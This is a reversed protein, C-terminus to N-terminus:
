GLAAEVAALAEENGALHKKAVELAAELQDYTAKKKFVASGGEYNVSPDLTWMVPPASEGAKYKAMDLSPAMGPVEPYFEKSFASKIKRPVVIQYGFLNKMENSLAFFRQIEIQEYNLNRQPMFCGGTVGKQFLLAIPTKPTKSFKIEDGIQFFRVVYLRSETKAYSFLMCRGADWTPTVGTSTGAVEKEWVCECDDAQYIKLLSKQKKAFVGTVGFYDRKAGYLTQPMYFVYPDRLGTEVCVPEDETRPDTIYLKGNSTSRVTYLLKSGDASWDLTYVEGPASIEYLVEASGVDYVWINPGNKEKSVVALVNACTPHWKAVILEKSTEPALTQVPEFAGASKKEPIIKGDEDFGDDPINFIQCVSAKTCVAVMNDNHPCWESWNVTNATNFPTCGSYRGPKDVKLLANKGGGGTLHVMVFKSSASCFSTAMKPCYISGIERYEFDKPDVQYINKYKRKLYDLSEAM